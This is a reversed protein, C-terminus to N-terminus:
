MEDPHHPSLGGLLSGLLTHPQGQCVQWKWALSMAHETAWSPALCPAESSLLM